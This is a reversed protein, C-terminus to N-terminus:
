SLFNCISVFSKVLVFNGFFGISNSIDIFYAEKESLIVRHEAKFIAYIYLFQKSTTKKSLFAVLLAAFASLILVAGFISLIVCLVSRRRYVKGFYRNLSISCIMLLIQSIKVIKTDKIKILFLSFFSFLKSESFFGFSSSKSYDRVIAHM